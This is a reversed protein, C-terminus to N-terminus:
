VGPFIGNGRRLLTLPPTGDWGGERVPLGKSDRRKHWGRISNLSSCLLVLLFYEQCGREPGNIGFHISSVEPLTLLALQEQIGWLM